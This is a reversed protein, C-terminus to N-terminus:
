KEPVTAVYLAYTYSSNYREMEVSQLYAQIITIHYNYILQGKVSEESCNFLLKRSTKDSQCAGIIEDQEHATYRARFM